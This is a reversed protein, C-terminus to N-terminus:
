TIANHDDNRSIILLLLSMDNYYIKYVYIMYKTKKHGTVQSKVMSCKLTRTVPKISYIFYFIM